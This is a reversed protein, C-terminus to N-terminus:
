EETLVHIWAEPILDNQTQHCNKRTIESLVWPNKFNRTRQFKLFRTHKKLSQKLGHRKVGKFKFIFVFLIGFSECFSHFSTMRKLINM